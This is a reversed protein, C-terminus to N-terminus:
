FKIGVKKWFSNEIGKIKAKKYNQKNEPTDLRKIERNIKIIENELEVIQKYIPEGLYLKWGKAYAEKRDSLESQMNKKYKSIATKYGQLTSYSKGLLESKIM